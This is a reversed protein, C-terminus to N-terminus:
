TFKAYFFFKAGIRIGLRSIIGKIETDLNKLYDFKVNIPMTGLSNFLNYTISRLEASSFSDKTDEKIPKLVIKIKNNIWNQLKESIKKNLESDIYETQITEAIPSYINEGQKLIGISDDGWYLKITDQLNIKDTNGFNIADDPANLFNHIKDKIMKIIEKKVHNNTFNSLSKIKDSLKLNFGSISGYIQGNLKIVKKESILINPIPGKINKSHISFEANDIFRNTLKEHLLDSLNDEIITTKEQWYKKDKLWNSQNSIYKWTRINEIKKALEEIGGEYNELKSVHNNFWSDPLFFDNKLLTLFIKKLLDIYSDNMIKQFDPIRCVEWLIQINLPKILYKEIEKDISLKRFSIEDEANKKRIFFNAQPHKNLSELVSSISSFDILSNRWYIRKISPFRSEVISDIILPDLEGAEKTLGFTGNKLYRGARGAIQGLESPHLNRNFKGDFKKLSSFVIHDINLNLGMGIADTAVLYDVNNNEYVEVQANRTRPSLSGLVVAAGGKHQRLLEAIEYVKNLNFAIIASRPRLKSINKKNEFTLKSFRDKSEIEIFPFLKLLINKINYSGLFITELSGRSNLIRDTFIYGREYDSAMQIEDIVVCEVDINTPMSEVTCFYYKSNKPVIKEEGTVLAVKDINLVKIAKEYNERALLRLPFGFIGSEYSLLKDFAVFTKGTNTPGLIASIKSTNNYQQM